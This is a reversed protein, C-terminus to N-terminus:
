SNLYEEKLCNHIASCTGSIINSVTTKGFRYSYSLTQYANSTALFHLTLTLRETDPVSRM